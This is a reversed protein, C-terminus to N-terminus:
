LRYSRLWYPTRTVREGDMSSHQSTQDLAPQWLQQSNFPAVERGYSSSVIEWYDEWDDPKGSRRLGVEM